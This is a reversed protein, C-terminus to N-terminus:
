GKLLLPYSLYSKLVQLRLVELRLVELRLVELRLVELRLVTASSKRGNREDSACRIRMSHSDSSECGIRERM